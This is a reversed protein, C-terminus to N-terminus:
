ENTTRTQNLLARLQILEAEAQRRALAEQQVREEAQQARTEAQRRAKAEQQAKAEAQQAKVEAQEVPKLVWNKTLPDYLRLVGTEEGLELGLTQSPLRNGVTQIPSYIGDVLRYGQLSPQLYQGDPDYLYYEKVGLIRAYLDKKEKLDKRYTKKSSLEIVFDPGKREEWLLYTRRPKKEVGFVMFVDPAVSKRPNGEEYYLLLNGSVYVDPRDKFHNRLIDILDVMLDRHTDTEAMPEGDSEPYIVAQETPLFRIKPSTKQAM